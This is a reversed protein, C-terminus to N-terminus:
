RTLEGPPAPLHPAPDAAAPHPGPAEDLHLHLAEARAPGTRTHVHPDEHTPHTARDAAALEAVVDDLLALLAMLGVVVGVTLVLLGLLVPRAAVFLHEALDGFAATM